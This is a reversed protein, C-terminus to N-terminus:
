PTSAGAGAPSAAPYRNVGTAIFALYDARSRGHARYVMARGIAMRHAQVTFDLDAVGMADRAWQMHPPRSGGHPLDTNVLQNMVWTGFPSMPSARLITEVEGQETEVMRLDFEFADSPASMTSRPDVLSRSALTREIIRMNMEHLRANIRQALRHVEPPIAIGAGPLELGGIGQWGTVEAAAGFFRSGSAPSSGVDPDHILLWQMAKYYTNREGITAYEAHRNALTNEKAATVFRDTASPGMLDVIARQSTTWDFSRMSALEIILQGAGVPDTPPPLDHIERRQVMASVARNGATAQLGLLGTPAAAVDAKDASQQEQVAAREVPKQDPGAIEAMAM